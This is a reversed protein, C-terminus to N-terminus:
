HHSIVTANTIPHDRRGIGGEEVLRKLSLLNCRVITEVFLMTDEKTNGEPIDVVYSVVVVVAGGGGDDGIVSTVSRYNALRHEGGIVRFSIVHKEEDLIELRETSSVAPLGSVLRVERIAGPSIQMSPTHPTLLRCDKIFHNYLQPKDFRRLISWVALSPASIPQLLFSCCQHVTTSHIHHHLHSTSLLLFNNCCQGSMLTTTSNTSTTVTTPFRGHHTFFNAKPRSFPSM